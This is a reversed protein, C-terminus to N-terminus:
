EPETGAFWISPLIIAALVAPLMNIRHVYDQYAILSSYEIVLFDFIGVFIIGFFLLRWRNGRMNLNKAYVAVSAALIWFIIGFNGSSLLSHFFMRFKLTYKFMGGSISPSKEVIDVIENLRDTSISLHSFIWTFVPYYFSKVTFYLVLPALFLFVKKDIHRKEKLVQYICLSLTMFLGMFSLIEGKDKIFCTFTFFLIARYLDRPDNREAYFGFFIFGLSFVIIMPLDVMGANSHMLVLPMASLLFVAYAGGKANGYRAFVSFTLALFFIFHASKTYNIFFPDPNGFISWYIQPLFTPWIGNYFVDNAIPMSFEGMYALMPTYSRLRIADDSVIPTSAGHVSFLFAMIATLLLLVFSFTEIGTAKPLSRAAPRNSPLPKKIKLWCFWGLAIFVPAAGVAIFLFRGSEFGAGFVLLYLTFTYYGTGVFWSQSLNYIFSEEELGMIRIIIKGSLLLLATSILFTM